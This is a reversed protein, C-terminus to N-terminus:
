FGILILMYNLVAKLGDSTIYPCTFYVKLCSLKAPGAVDQVTIKEEIDKCSVALYVIFCALFARVFGVCDSM